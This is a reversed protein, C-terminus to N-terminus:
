PARGARTEQPGGGPLRGVARELNAAATREDSAAGIDLVVADLVANAARLV